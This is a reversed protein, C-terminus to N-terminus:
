NENYVGNIRLVDGVLLERFVREDGNKESIYSKEPNCRLKDFALDREKKSKYDALKVANVRGNNTLTRGFIQYRQCFNEKTFYLFSQIPYLIEVEFPDGYYSIM